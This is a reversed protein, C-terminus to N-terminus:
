RRATDACSKGESYEPKTKTEKESSDDPLLAKFGSEHDIVLLTMQYENKFNSSPLG